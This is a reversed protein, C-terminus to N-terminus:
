GNFVERVIRAIAISMRVKAAYMPMGPKQGETHHWSGETDMYWWGGEDFAHTQGPFSGQGVGQVGHPNVAEFGSGFEEMLIPSITAEVVEGYRLWQKTIKQKDIALVVARVGTKTETEIQQTFTIYRGFTPSNQEATEIGVEALREVVAKCKQILDNQFADLEEIAKEISKKSLEINITRKM